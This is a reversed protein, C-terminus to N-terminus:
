GTADKVFQIVDDTDGIITIYANPVVPLNNPPNAGKMVNDKPDVYIYKIFEIQPYAKKLDGITNFKSVIKSNSTLPLEVRISSM